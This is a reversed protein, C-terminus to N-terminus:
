LKNESRIPICCSGFYSKPEDVGWSFPVVQQQNPDKVSVFGCGEDLVVTLKFSGVPILSALETRFMEQTKPLTSLLLTWVFEIETTGAQMKELPLNVDYRGPATQAFTLPVDALTASELAADGYPLKVPMVSVGQPGKTVTVYSHAVINGDATIHWQDQETGVFSDKDWEQYGIPEKVEKEVPQPLNEETVDEVSLDGYIVRWTQSDKPRYWFIATNADGLKVGKGAYHWKGQGQFFRIFMLGKSLKMGLATKEDDPIPLKDFKEGITPAMKIYHEVSVDDPFRGDGVVEAQMRLGEIFDEETSGLLNLEQQEVKYGEPADMSFLSEDMPVDFRMNKCIVKMQGGQQEIRVPLATAPDVWIVIEVQPHKARFGYLMQGNVLQEGLEDVVFHPNEQLMKILGRLQDMYNPMQPLDKLNIYTAKKEKDELTLIRASALDIISVAEKMGEMTRRIKSGMIMDHIVPAKGEEGVIIDLEATRADMIPRIIDAWVCCTVAPTKGTLFYIGALVAIIIVAAAALKTIPSKM